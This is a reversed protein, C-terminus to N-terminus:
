SISLMCEYAFLVKPQNHLRAQFLLFRFFLVLIRTKPVNKKGSEEIAWLNPDVVASM